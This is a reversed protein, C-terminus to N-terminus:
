SRVGLVTRLEGGPLPSGRRGLAGLEAWGPAAGRWRRTCHSGSQEIGPVSSFHLFLTQLGKQWPWGIEPILIAGLNM